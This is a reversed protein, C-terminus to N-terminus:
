FPEVVEGSSAQARNLLVYGDDAGGFGVRNEPEGVSPLARWRPGLDTALESRGAFIQVRDTADRNSRHQSFVMRANLEDNRRGLAPM